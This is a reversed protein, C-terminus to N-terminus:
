QHQMRLLGKRSTNFTLKRIGEDSILWWQGGYSVYGGQTTDPLGEKPSSDTVNYVVPVPSAIYGTSTFTSLM